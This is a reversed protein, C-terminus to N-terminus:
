SVVKFKITHTYNFSKINIYKDIIECREDRVWDFCGITYDQPFNTNLEIIDGKM